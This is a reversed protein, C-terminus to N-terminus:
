ASKKYVLLCFELETDLTQLTNLRAQDKEGTKYYYPTMLFLNKIDENNELRIGYKVERKELLKYGDLGLGSVENKYPKDYIAKKLEYLHNELPIAMILIGDKKLIRNFEDAAFPSFIELLMDASADKVPIDFSSAVALCTRKCRKSALLVADKSIDFASIEAGVLENELCHTYYGEGCGCDLVRAGDFSYKAATETVARCFEEYYGKSLFDRRAYTMLRNDGHNGSKSTRLLNVYGSKATDFCHGKSCVLSHEKKRLEGKCVPCVFLM